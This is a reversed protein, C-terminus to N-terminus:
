NIELEKEVTYNLDWRKLADMITTEPTIVHGWQGTTAHAMLRISCWYVLWRPIHWAVFMALKMRIKDLEYKVSYFRWWM